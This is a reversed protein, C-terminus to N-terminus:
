EVLEQIVWDRPKLTAGKSSIGQGLPQAYDRFGIRKNNGQCADMFKLYVGEEISNTTPSLLDLIKCSRFSAFMTAEDTYYASVESLVIKQKKFELEWDDRVIEPKGNMAFIPKGERVLLKGDEMKYFHKIETAVITVKKIVEERSKSGLKYVEPDRKYLEQESIVFKEKWVRLKEPKKEVECSILQISIIGLIFVRFCIFSIPKILIRVGQWRVTTQLEYKM